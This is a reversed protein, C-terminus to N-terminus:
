IKGPGVYVGIRGDTLESCSIGKQVKVIFLHLRSQCVSAVTVSSWCVHSYPCTSLGRDWALKTQDDDMSTTQCSLAMIQLYGHQMDICFFTFWLSESLFNFRKALKINMPTCVKLVPRKNIFSVNSCPCAWSKLPYLHLCYLPKGSCCVMWTQQGKRWEWLRPSIRTLVCPLFPPRVSFIIHKWYWLPGNSTRWCLSPITHGIIQATPM